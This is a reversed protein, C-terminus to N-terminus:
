AFKKTNIEDFITQAITLTDSAIKDTEYAMNASQQTSRDIESIAQNIQNMAKLQETVTRSVDDILTTTEEISKDLNEFGFIMHSSISKGENAKQTADEVLKKIDKAADSSKSALNGVEGAVVAFGKGAEGATAAEVAANLSLINTQFAIQDIISIAEFILHTSQNIADMSQATNKALQNGKQSLDKTNNALQLMSLTKENSHQITTTLEEISAATEELSTAQQNASNNLHSVKEQLEKAFDSLSKGNDLSQQLMIVITEGLHNIRKSIDGKADIIRPRFDYKSYQELIDTIEFINRGINKQLIDLMFNISNVTHNIRENDAKLYLRHTLEGDAIKECIAMIEGYVGLDNEVNEQIELMLNNITNFEKHYTDKKNIPILTVGNTKQSLYSCFNTFGEYITNFQNQHHLSSKILYFLAISHIALFIYLLDPYILSTLLLLTTIVVFVIHINHKLLDVM